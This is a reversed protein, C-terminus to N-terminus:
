GSRTPRSLAITSARRLTTTLPPVPEPLVVKQVDERVVDGVALADDRDFVRGFEREVLLVDHAELRTRGVDFAAARDRDAVEDLVRQAHPGVPDDDALAARPSASSM